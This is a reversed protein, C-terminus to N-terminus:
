AEEKPIAIDSKLEHPQLPDLFPNRYLKDHSDVGVELTCDTLPLAIHVAEHYEAFVYRFQILAISLKGGMETARFTALEYDSGEKVLGIFSVVGPDLWVAVRNNEHESRVDSLYIDLQNLM